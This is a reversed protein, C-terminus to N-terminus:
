LAFIYAEFREGAAASEYARGIMDSKDGAVFTGNDGLKLYDGEVIDGGAIVSLMANREFTMVDGVQFTRSAGWDLVPERNGLADAAGLNAEPMSDDGIVGLFLDDKGSAGEVVWTGKIGSDETPMTDPACVAKYATRVYGNADKTNTIGNTITEAARGTLIQGSSIIM